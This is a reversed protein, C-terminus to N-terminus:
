SALSSILLLSREGTWFLAIAACVFAISRRAWQWSMENMRAVLWFLPWVVGIIILQGIEVGVNFALLSQWINPSDVRLIENLVFSFGLGHLLGMATTM